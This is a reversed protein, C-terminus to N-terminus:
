PTWLSYTKLTKRLLKSDVKDNKFEYDSITCTRLRLKSDLIKRKDLDWKRTYSITENIM